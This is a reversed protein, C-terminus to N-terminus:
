RLWLVERYFLEALVIPSLAAGAEIGTAAAWGAQWAGDPGTEERRALAYHIPSSAPSPNSESLVATTWEASVANVVDVITVTGTTPIGARSLLAPVATPGPYIKTMSALDRAFVLPKQVAPVGGFTDDPMLSRGGVVWSLMDLEEDAMKNSDVVKELSANFKNIFNSLTEEVKGRL